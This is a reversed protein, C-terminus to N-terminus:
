VQYDSFVEELHHENTEFTLNGVHVVRGSLKVPQTDQTSRAEAAPRSKTSSIDNEESGPSETEDDSYDEGGGDSTGSCEVDQLDLIEAPHSEDIDMWDAALPRRRVERSVMQSPKERDSTALTNEPNSTSSILADQTTLAKGSARQAQAEAEANRRKREQLGKWTATAIVHSEDYTVPTMEPIRQIQLPPSPQPIAAPPPSLTRVSRSTSAASEASSSAEMEDILANFFVNRRAQDEGAIVREAARNAEAEEYCMEEELSWPAQNIRDVGIDRSSRIGCSAGGVFLPLNACSNVSEAGMEDMWKGVAESKRDDTWIVSEQANQHRERWREKPMELLPQHSSSQPPTERVVPLGCEALAQWRVLDEIATDFTRQETLWRQYDYSGPNNMDEPLRRRMGAWYHERQEKQHRMEALEEVLPHHPSLPIPRNSAVNSFGFPNGHTRIVPEASSSVELRAKPNEYPSPRGRWRRRRRAPTNESQRYTRSWQRYTRSRQRDSIM